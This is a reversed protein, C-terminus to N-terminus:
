NMGLSGFHFLHSVSTRLYLLSALSQRIRFVSVASPASNRRPAACSSGVRVPQAQAAAIIGAVAEESLGEKIPKAADIGGGELVRLFAVGPSGAKVAEAAVDGKDCGFDATTTLCLM